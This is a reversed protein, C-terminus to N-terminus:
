RSGEGPPAAQGWHDFSIVQVPPHRGGPRPPAELESPDSPYGFSLVVHLHLESPFGLLSRAADSEYITAPCSGIGLEWAAIQMYAAAQGADFLISWRQAPDPTLIAIACAAEAIHGAYTGLKSLALLVQRDRIALFHWPQMNKASQARRGAHLIARVAEDPLPRPAFQRVARKTRIADAVNM